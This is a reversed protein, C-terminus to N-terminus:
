ALLRLHSSSLRVSQPGRRQLSDSYTEYHAHFPHPFWYDILLRLTERNIPEADELEPILASAEALYYHGGIAWLRGLKKAKRLIFYKDYYEPTIWERQDNTM